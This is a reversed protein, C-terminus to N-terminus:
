KRSPRTPTDPTTDRSHPTDAHAKAEGPLYLEVGVHENSYWPFAEEHEKRLRTASSYQVTWNSKPENKDPPEKELIELTQFYNTILTMRIPSSKEWSKSMKKACNKKNEQPKKGFIPINVFKINKSKSFKVFLSLVGGYISVYTWNKELSQFNQFFREGIHILRLM